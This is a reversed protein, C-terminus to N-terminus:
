GMSWGATQDKVSYVFALLYYQCSYAVEVCKSLEGDFNPNATLLLILKVVLYIYNRKEHHLDRDCLFWDM